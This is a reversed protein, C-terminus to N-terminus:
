GSPPRVFTSADSISNQPVFFSPVVNKVIDLMNAAPQSQGSLSTTLPLLAALGLGALSVLLCRPSSSSRRM